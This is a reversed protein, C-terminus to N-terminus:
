ADLRYVRRAPRREPRSRGRRLHRRRRPDRDAHVARDVTVAAELERLPETLARQAEAILAQLDRRTTERYPYSVGAGFSVADRGDSTVLSVDIGDMSTGSIVGIATLTADNEDIASM